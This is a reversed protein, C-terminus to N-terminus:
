GESQLCHYCAQLDPKGAQLLRSPLSSPFSSPLSPPLFPPLCAPLSPPTLLLYSSLQPPCVCFIPFWFSRSCTALSTQPLFSRGVVRPTGLSRHIPGPLSVGVPAAVQKASLCVCHGKAVQFLRLAVPFRTFSCTGMGAPSPRPRSAAAPVVSQM